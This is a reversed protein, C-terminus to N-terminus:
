YIGYQAHGVGVLEVWKWVGNPAAQALKPHSELYENDVIQTYIGSIYLDSIEDPMEYVDSISLQMYNMYDEIYCQNIKGLCVGSLTHIIDYGITGDRFNRVLTVDDDVHVNKFNEQPIDAFDELSLDISSNFELHSIKKNKIKGWRSRNTAFVQIPRLESSPQLPALYLNNKPRTVGVYLTKYEEASAETKALSSAFSSDLIVSEYERGKARHINSVIINGVPATRLIEDDIRAYLLSDLLDRVKLEDEEHLLNCLREWIQAATYKELIENGKIRAEFQDFSIYKKKYNYFVDSIWPAYNKEARKFNLVHKIGRKRLNSSARLTQGNNRLLLCIKGGNRYEELEKEQIAVSSKSIAPLKDLMSKTASNMEAPNQTLIAERLSNTLDILRSNQRHNKCLKYYKAKSHIQHVLANYFETSKMPNHNHEQTYDYIAQCADGFVSIGCANDLCAHVIQLVFRALDNTLDQIEDVIFHEWNEVIEKSFQQVIKRAVKLSKDYDLEHMNVKNWGDDVFLENAQAILWWAFSHFTRIDVKMLGRDAGLRVFQALRQRVEDVAANTFCLVLIGEPDVEKETVLYNLRQILTYTKGTGPGADVFIIDNKSAEIIQEQSVEVFQEFINEPLEFSTPEDFVVKISEFEKSVEKKSAVLLDITNNDVHKQVKVPARYDNSGTNVILPFAPYNESFEDYGYEKVCGIDSSDFYKIEEDTEIPKAEMIIGKHPDMVPGCIKTRNKYGGYVTNKIIAIQHKNFIYEPTNMAGSPSLIFRLDDLAQKHFVKSLFTADYKKGYGTSNVQIPQINSYLSINSESM